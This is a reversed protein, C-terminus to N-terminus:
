IVLDLRGKEKIKDLVDMSKIKYKFVGVYYDEVPKLPKNRSFPL